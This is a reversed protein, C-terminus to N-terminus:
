SLAAEIAEHLRHPIVVAARGAGEVRAGRGIEGQECGHQPPSCASWPKRLRTTRVRSKPGGAAVSARRLLWTERRTLRRWRRPRTALIGRVRRQRTVGSPYATM